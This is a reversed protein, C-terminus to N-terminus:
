RRFELLPLSVGGGTTNKLKERDIFNVFDTIKEYNGLHKASEQYAM